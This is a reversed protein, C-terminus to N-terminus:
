RSRSRAPKWPKRIADRIAEYREGRTRAEAIAPVFVTEYFAAGMREIIDHDFTADTQLEDGVSRFQPEEDPEAQRRKARARDGSASGSGFRRAAVVKALWISYGKAEDKPYGKALRDQRSYEAFVDFRRITQLPVPTAHEDTPAPM